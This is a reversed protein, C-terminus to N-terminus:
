KGNTQELRNRQKRGYLIMGLAGLITLLCVGAGTLLNMIQEQQPNQGFADFMATQLFFLSMIAGTHELNRLAGLIPSNDGRCQVLRIIAMTLKYFTYAAAAFILLGPYHKGRGQWVMQFVMASMTLNLILLLFGCLTYGRWATEERYDRTYRSLVLAILGQVLHYAGNSGIWPSQQFIGLVIQFLAYALNIGLAKYIRRTLAASGEAVPTARARHRRGLGIARPIGQICLLVLAYFSLVFILYAYWTRERGTLFLWILAPFALSVLATVWWPPTLTKKFIRLFKEM